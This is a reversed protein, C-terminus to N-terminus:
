PAISLAPAVTVAEKKIVMVRLTSSALDLTGASENQLRYSVVGSASVWATATIGQLDLGFSAFALDGLEAGPLAVTTTVGAADVLSIPDYTVSSFLNGGLANQALALAQPIVRVRMTTSALDITGGSENQFRVAVTNTASVYATVSIGQLDVDHSFYAIDGLAAGTVTATSTAGAGDVLSAVDITAFGELIGWYHTPVTQPIVYARLTTSALDITGGSENQFRVSVTDVASVYATVSISQVDLGMSVFAFDGLQAGPVTITSTSGAGDVLSAVDLTASAVLLGGTSLRSAQLDNYIAQLLGKILSGDQLAAANISKTLTSM